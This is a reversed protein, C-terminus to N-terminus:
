PRQDVDPAPAHLKRFDIWLDFLGAAIVFLLLYQQILILFYFLLRLFLPARKKQFFFEIIALGQVLYAFLCIILVNMALMKVALGPLLLSIGAAILLWVLYDSAKWRSLDGFEPPNLGRMRFLIRAPIINIIVIAAIIVLSLAPFTYTLARSIRGANEKIFQMQEVPLDLQAYLKINEQVMTHIYRYIMEWPPLGQMASYIIILAGMFVLGSCAALAVTWGISLRRKLIMSIILGLCGLILFVAITLQSGAAQQAAGVILLSFILVAAGGTRGLKETYFLVPLPIMILMMASLFPIFAVTLFVLSTFFIGRAVEIILSSIRGADV